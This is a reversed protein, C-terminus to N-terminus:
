VLIKLPPVRSHTDLMDELPTWQIIFDSFWPTLNIRARLYRPKPNSDYLYEGALQDHTKVLNSCM